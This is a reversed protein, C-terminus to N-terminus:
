EGNFPLMARWVTVSDDGFTSRFYQAAANSLHPACVMAPPRIERFALRHRVATGYTRQVLDRVRDRLGPYMDEPWAKVWGHVHVHRCQPGVMTRPVPSCSIRWRDTPTNCIPLTSNFM